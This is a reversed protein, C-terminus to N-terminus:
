IMMKRCAEMSIARSYRASVLAFRADDWDDYFLLSMMNWEHAM